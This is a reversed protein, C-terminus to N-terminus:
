NSIVHPCMREKGFFYSRCISSISTFPIVLAIAMIGYYTDKNHLLNNSLVPALLVILIILLVNVLLIVPVVSFFLRKNNRKEEAILKALAVPMGLQSIGIFLSFTPLILMYLGLGETGILRSMIIKIIMGLVKTLFGGLLLIITSKIFKEKM